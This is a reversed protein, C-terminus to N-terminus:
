YRKLPHSNYPWMLIDCTLEEDEKRIRVRVKKGGGEKAMM